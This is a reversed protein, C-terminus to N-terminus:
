ENSSEKRFIKFIFFVALAVAELAFSTALASAAGAAGGLPTLVLLAILLYITTLISATAVQRPFGRGQLVAGFLSTFAAFVLGMLVIQLPVISPQYESGLFIPVLWPVLFILSIYIIGVLAGSLLVLNAITKASDRRTRAAHPLIVVALSTPLMRLPSTLKSASAYYGAVGPSAMAGVIGADLNRLQVALTNIWYPRALDLVARLPEREAVVLKSVHRHAFAVSCLAAIAVAITYALMPAIDTSALLLFGGLALARRCVLNISNLHTDGDAIAVGLWTDANKEGAASVALPLMLFFAEDFFVGSFLFLLALVLGLIFTSRSNVWLGGSVVGRSAGDTRERVVLKAVGLDAVAQLWIIAGLIAALVGFQHPGLLRALIIVTTAQLAAAVLRGLLIWSFQRFLQTRM